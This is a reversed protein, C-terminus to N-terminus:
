NVTEIRECMGDCMFQQADLSHAIFGNKMTGLRGSIAAIRAAFIVPMDGKYADASKLVYCKRRKALVGAINRRDLLQKIAKENTKKVTCGKESARELLLTHHIGPMKETEQRIVDECEKVTMRRREDM